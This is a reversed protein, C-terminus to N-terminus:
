WHVGTANQVASTGQNVLDEGKDKADNAAGAVANGPNEIVTKAADFAKQANTKATRAYSADATAVTLYMEMAVATAGAGPEAAIAAAKQVGSNGGSKAMRAADALTDVADRLSRLVGKDTGRGPAAIGHADGAIRDIMRALGDDGVADRLDALAQAARNLDAELHTREEDAVQQEAQTERDRLGGLEGGVEGIKGDVRGVEGQLRDAGRQAHQMEKGVVYEGVALGTQAAASGIQIGLQAATAAFLPSTVGLSTIEGVCAFMILSATCAIEFWKQSAINTYWLREVHDIQGAQEKLGLHKALISAGKLLVDMNMLVTVALVGVSAAILAVCCAIMVVSVAGGTGFTAICIAIAVVIAVVAVAITVIAAVATLLTAWDADHGLAGIHAILAHGKHEFQDLEGGFAENVKKPLQAKAKELKGLEGSLLELQARTDQEAQSAAHDVLFEASSEGLAALEQVFANGYDHAAAERAADQVARPQGKLLHALKKADGHCERVLEAGLGGGHGHGGHDPGALQPLQPARAHGGMQPPQPIHPPHM